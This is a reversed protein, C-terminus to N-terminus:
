QMFLHTDLAYVYKYLIHLLLAYILKETIAVYVELNRIKVSEGRRWTVAQTSTIPDIKFMLKINRM